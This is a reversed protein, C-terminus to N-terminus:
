CGSNTFVAALGVHQNKAAHSSLYLLSVLSEGSRWNELYLDLKGDNDLDGALLVDGFDIGSEDWVGSYELVRERSGDSLVLVGVRTGEKTLGRSVRLRWTVGNLEYARAMGVKLTDRESFARRHYVVNAKGPKLNKIKKAALVPKGIVKFNPEILGTTEGDEHKMRKPKAKAHSFTFGSDDKTLVLWKTGANLDFQNEYVSTDTEWLEILNPQYEPHALEEYDDPLDIFEPVFDDAVPPPDIHTRVLVEEEGVPPVDFDSSGILWLDAAVVGIVIALIFTIPKTLWSKM